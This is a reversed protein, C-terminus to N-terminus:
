NEGLINQLKVLIEQADDLVIQNYLNKNVFPEILEEIEYIPSGNGFERNIKSVADGLLMLQQMFAKWKIRDCDKYGFLNTQIEEIVYEIQFEFSYM